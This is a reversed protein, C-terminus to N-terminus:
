LGEPIPLPVSFVSGTKCNYIEQLRSMEFKFSSEVTRPYKPNLLYYVNGHKIVDECEKPDVYEMFEEFPCIDSIDIIKTM